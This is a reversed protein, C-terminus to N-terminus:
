LARDHESDVVFYFNYFSKAVRAHNPFLKVVQGVSLAICSLHGVKSEWRIISSEQSIRHVIRHSSM